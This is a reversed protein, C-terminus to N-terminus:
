DRAAAPRPAAADASVKSRLQEVLGAVGGLRKAAAGYEQRLTLAMSIGEVMVDVIKFREGRESLRWVLSIETGSERVFRTYVLVTKSRGEPRQTEVVDFGRGKYADNQRTFLPLFRRLAMDEFVALFDDRDDESAARWSRGLVFRSIARLDVAENFLARFRQEREPRSLSQDNLETAAKRGFTVLFDGPETAAFADTVPGSLTFLVLAFSAPGLKRGIGGRTGRNKM